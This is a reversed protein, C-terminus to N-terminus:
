AGSITSRAFRAEFDEETLPTELPTGDARWGDPDLIRAGPHKLEIWEAATRKAPEVPRPERLPHAGYLPSFRRGPEM